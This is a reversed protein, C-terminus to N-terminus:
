GRDPGAAEPAIRVTPDLVWDAEGDNGVRMWNKLKHPLVGNHPNETKVYGLGQEIENVIGIKWRAHPDSFLRWAGQAHEGERAWMPENRCVRDEVLVYRGSAEAPDSTTVFLESPAGPHGGSHLQLALEKQLQQQLKPEKAEEEQREAAIRDFVGRMKKREQAEHVKIKKELRALEAKGEDDGPYQDFLQQIQERCKEWDNLGNHAKARRIMAKRNAGDINLAKTCSIKVARYMKCHLEAAALNTLAPVRMQKAEERTPEDMDWVDELFEVARNYKKRAREFKGAKFLENGQARRELAHGLKARPTQDEAKDEPKYHDKLNILYELVAGGPIRLEANGADGYCWKPQVKFLAKEGLRMSELCKEVGFIVHESGLVVTKDTWDVFPEMRKGEDDLAWGTMDLTCVTEYNPKRWNEEDGETKTIKMITKNRRFYPSVDELYEFRILHVRYIVTAKPPVVEGYAKDGFAASPQLTFESVEGRRMTKIGKLLGAAWGPPAESGLEHWVGDPEATIFQAGKEGDVTSVWGDVRVHANNDDAPRQWGRGEEVCLKAVSKDGTVFCTEGPKGDPCRGDAAAPPAEPGHAAAAPAAGEAGEKEARELAQEYEIADPHQEEPM